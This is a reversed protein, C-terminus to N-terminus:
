KMWKVGVEWWKVSWETTQHSCVCVRAGKCNQIYNFWEAEQPGLISGPM